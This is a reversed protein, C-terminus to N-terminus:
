SSTSWVPFTFASISTHGLAVSMTFQNMVSRMPADSATGGVRCRHILSPSDNSTPSRVSCATRGGM